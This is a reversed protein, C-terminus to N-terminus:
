SFQGSKGSKNKKGGIEKIKMDQRYGFKGLEEQQHDGIQSCWLILFSFLVDIPHFSKKKGGIKIKKPQQIVPLCELFSKANFPLM